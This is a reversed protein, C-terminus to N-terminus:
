CMSAKDTSTYHEHSITGPIVSENRSVPSDRPRMSMASPTRSDTNYLFKVLSVINVLLFRVGQGAVGMEGCLSDVSLLILVAMVPREPLM